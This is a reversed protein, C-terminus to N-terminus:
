PTYLYIPTTRSYTTSTSGSAAKRVLFGVGPQFVAEDDRATSLGGGVKRWGPNSGLFYYYLATPSKNKGEVSPDFVLLEDTRSGHSSSGAFAGSEFLGSQALTVPVAVALGVFNDQKLQAQRTAIPTAVPAWQVLGPLYIRRGSSANERYLIAAHPAIPDDDRVTSIGGGVKRWGPNAGSYYYYSNTPSLNFGPAAPDWLQLETQRSAHSSSATVGTGGPFLTGFTWFPIVRLEDNEVVQSLAVGAPLELELANSANAQVKIALGALAGKDFRIYYTNSQEGAQYVFANAAWNPEGKVTVVNGNVSAVRGAFASPRHLPVSILTDSRGPTGVAVFGSPETAAEQQGHSVATGGLLAAAFAVRLVTAPFVCVRGRGVLASHSSGASSPGHNSQRQM